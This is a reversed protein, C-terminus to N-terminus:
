QTCSQNCARLADLRNLRNKIKEEKPKNLLSILQGPSMELKDVEFSHVENDKVIQISKSNLQVITGLHAGEYAIIHSPFSKISFMECWNEWDEYSIERHIVYFLYVLRRIREKEALINFECGYHSIPKQTRNYLVIKIYNYTIIFNLKILLLYYVIDLLIDNNSIFKVACWVIATLIPILVFTIM